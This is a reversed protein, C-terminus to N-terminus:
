QATDNSFTTATSDAPTAAFPSCTNQGPLAHGPELCFDRVTEIRPDAHIEPQDLLDLPLVEVGVVIGHAGRREVSGPVVVQVRKGTADETIPERGTREVRVVTAKVRLIEGYLNEDGPEVDTHLFIARVRRNAESTLCDPNVDVHAAVRVISENTADPNQYVRAIVPHCRLTDEAETTEPGEDGCGTAGLVATALATAKILSGSEPSRM